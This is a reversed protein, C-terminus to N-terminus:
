TAKTPNTMLESTKVMDDKVNCMDTWKKKLGMMSTLQKVRQEAGITRLTIKIKNIFSLQQENTESFSLFPQALEFLFYTM